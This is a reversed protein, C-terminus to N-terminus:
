LPDATVKFSADSKVTFPIASFYGSRVKADVTLEYTDSKLYTDLRETTPTLNITNTNRPVSIISALLIKNNGGPTNIFVDLRQLFNFTSDRPNTVTLVMKDLLVNKVKDRTTKNNRFSDESKTIVTVPKPLQTGAFSIPVDVSQTVDVTFTLLQNVKKCGVVALLLVLPALLFLKKMTM